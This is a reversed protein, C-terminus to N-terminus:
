VDDREVEIVYRHIEGDDNVLDFYVYTSEVQEMELLYGDELGLSASSVFAGYKSEGTANYAWHPVTGPQRNSSTNVGEIEVHYRADPVVTEGNIEFEVDSIHVGEADTHYEAIPYDSVHRDAPLESEDVGSVSASSEGELSTIHDPTPSYEGDDYTEPATADRGDLLRDLITEDDTQEDDDVPETSSELDDGHSSDIDADYEDGDDIPFAAGVAIPLVVVVIAAVITVRRYRQPVRLSGSLLAYTVGVLVAFLTTFITWILAEEALVATSSTLDDIVVSLSYEYVGYVVYGFIPLPCIVAWLGVIQARSKRVPLRPAIVWLYCMVVPVLLAAIIYGAIVTNLVSSVGIDSLGFGWGGPDLNFVEVYLWWLCIVAQM